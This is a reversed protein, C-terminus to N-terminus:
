LGIIGVLAVGVFVLHASAAGRAVERRELLSWSTDGGRGALMEGLIIGWPGLGRVLGYTGYIAAGLLPDGVLLAGLPVVFWLWFGIRSTGGLGLAGGTKVAWRVPGDEVWRKPTECDVQLLAVPRGALEVAGVATGTLALLSAVALRPSTGVSSGLLGLVFGAAGGAAASALVFLSAAGFWGRRSGDRYM